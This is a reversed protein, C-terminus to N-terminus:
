EYDKSKDVKGQDTDQDLDEQLNLHDILDQLDLFSFTSSCIWNLIQHDGLLDSTLNAPDAKKEEVVRHIDLFMQLHFEVRRKDWKKKKSRRTEEKDESKKQRHTKEKEDNEELRKMVLNKDEKEDAKLDTSDDSIFCSKEVKM